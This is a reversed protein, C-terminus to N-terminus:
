AASTNRISAYYLVLLIRSYTYICMQLLFTHSHSCPLIFLFLHLFFFVAPLVAPSMHTDTLLFPLEGDLQWPTKDQCSAEGQSSVAVPAFPTWKLQQCM